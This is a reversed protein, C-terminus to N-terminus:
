VPSPNTLNRITWRIKLATWLQGIQNREPEDSEKELLSIEKYLLDVIGDSTTIGQIDKQLNPLLKEIGRWVTLVDILRDVYNTRKETDLEGYNRAKEAFWPRILITINNLVRDQQNEDLSIPIAQWDLGNSCEEELRNALSLKTKLSEKGLDKAALWYFLQQRNAYAPDILGNKYFFVFLGVGTVIPLM